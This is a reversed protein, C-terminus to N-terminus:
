EPELDTTKLKEIAAKAQEFLKKLASTATNYAGSPTPPTDTVVAAQAPTNSSTNQASPKKEEYVCKGSNGITYGHKCETAHCKLIDTYTCKTAYGHHHYVCVCDDNDNYTMKKCTLVGYKDKNLYYGQSNDCNQAMCDDGTYVAETWSDPYTEKECDEKKILPIKIIELIGQNALANTEIDQKIKQETVGAKYKYCGFKYLDKTNETAFLNESNYFVGQGNECYKSLWTDAASHEYVSTINYVTIALVPQFYFIIIVSFLAKFHNM